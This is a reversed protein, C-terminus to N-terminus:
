PQDRPSPPIPFPHRVAPVADAFSRWKVAPYDGLFHDPATRVGGLDINHFWDGLEAARRRIEDPLLRATSSSSSSSSM